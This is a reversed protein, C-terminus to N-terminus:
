QIPNPPDYSSDPGQPNKTVKGSQFLTDYYTPRYYDNVWEWVNGAMDYLGYGNPKYQAVLAIGIYGDEATDGNDVPFEGQYINAQFKRKQSLYAEGM